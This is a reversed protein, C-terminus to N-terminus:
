EVPVVVDGVNLLLMGEAVVRKGQFDEPNLVEVMAGATAGKKVEVSTVTGDDGVVFAVERGGRKAVAGAPLGFGQRREFVIRADCLLGPAVAPDPKTIARLEFTRTMPNITPSKYTVPLEQGFDANVLTKGVAVEAYRDATLTLCLEHVRPDDMTFIPTGADVYDGRDQLKQTIIGDFPALGRSDSLNKEAIRLATDAQQIKADASAVAAKARALTAAASRLQLEAKEWADKTVSRSENYLRRYREADTKAKEHAAEAEAQAAVAEAKAAHAVAQDDKAIAVQNELNIRDVQFLPQGAKVVDGEDALVEDITGPLRSAVAATYKTRISGQVVAVDEFTLEPTLECVKVRPRNDAQQVTEEKQCGTALLLSCLGLIPLVSFPFRFVSRAGARSPCDGTVVTFHNTTRNDFTEQKM